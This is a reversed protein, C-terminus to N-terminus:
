GRKMENYEKVGFGWLMLCLENELTPIDKTKIEKIRANLKSVNNEYYEQREADEKAKDEETEYVVTYGCTRFDFYNDSVKKGYRGRMDYWTYVNHRSKEKLEEVEKKLVEIQLVIPMAEKTVTKNFRKM